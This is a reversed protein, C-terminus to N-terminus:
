NTKKGHILITPPYQKSFNLQSTCNFELGKKTIKISEAYAASHVAIANIKDQLTKGLWITMFGGSSFGVFFLNNLDAKLSSNELWKICEKITVVDESNNKLSISDWARPGFTIPRGATPAIIIFGKELFKKSFVTQKLSWPNLGFFWSLATQVAGHMLFLVPYGQNPSSFDPIKFM